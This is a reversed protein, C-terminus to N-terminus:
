ELFHFFKKWNSNEDALGVYLLKGCTKALGPSKISPCLYSFFELLNLDVWPGV